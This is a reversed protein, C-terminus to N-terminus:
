EEAKLENMSYKGFTMSCTRIDLAVDIIRGAIVTILKGHAKPAIQYHLGRLVNKKSQSV